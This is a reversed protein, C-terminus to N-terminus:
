SPDVLGEPQEACTYSLSSGTYWGMLGSSFTKTFPTDRNQRKVSVQIKIVAKKHSVRLFKCDSYSFLEHKILDWLPLTTNQTEVHYHPLAIKPLHEHPKRWFCWSYIPTDPQHVWWHQWPIYISRAQSWSLLRAGKDCRISTCQIHLTHM